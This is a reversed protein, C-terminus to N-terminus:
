KGAYKEWVKINKSKRLYKISKVEDRAAAAAVALLIKLGLLLLKSEQM